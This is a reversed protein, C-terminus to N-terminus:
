CTVYLNLYMAYRTGGKYELLCPLKDAWKKLYTMIWKNADHPLEDILVNTEGKYGDWWKNVSNKFYIGKLDAKPDVGMRTIAM